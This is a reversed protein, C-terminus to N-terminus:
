RQRVPEALLRGAKKQFSVQRVTSNTRKRYQALAFFFTPTVANPNTRFPQPSPKKEALYTGASGCPGRTSDCCRVAYQTSQDSAISNERKEKKCKKGKVHNRAALWEVLSNTYLVGKQGFAARRVGSTVKIGRQSRGGGGWERPLWSPSWLCLGGEACSL